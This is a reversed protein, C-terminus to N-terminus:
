TKREKKLIREWKKKEIFDSIDDMLIFIFFLISLVIGILFWVRSLYSLTEPDRLPSTITPHEIPPLNKYILSLLSCVILPVPAVLYKRLKRKRIKFMVDIM